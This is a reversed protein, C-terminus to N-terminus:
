VPTGTAGKVITAFTDVPSYGLAALLISGIVLALIISGVRILWVIAPNMADTRKALRIGPLANRM